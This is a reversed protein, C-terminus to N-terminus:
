SLTMEALAEDGPEILEPFEERAIQDILAFAENQLNSPAQTVRGQMRFVTRNASLNTTLNEGPRAGNEYQLYYQAVLSAGNQGPIRLWEETWEDYDLTEARLEDPVDSEDPVRYFASRSENQVQHMKRLVDLPSNLDTVIRLPSAPDSSEKRLRQEFADLRNLFEASIGLRRNEWAAAKDSLQALESKEDPSQPQFEDPWETAGLEAVRLEGLREQESATPEPAQGPGEFVLELDGVGGLRAEIWRFDEMVPNDDPFMARFDSDIELRALGIVSLVTALAAVGLVPVRQRILFAAFPAAWRHHVVDGETQPKINKPEPALSLLAPVLTMSLLWAFITGVAATYGLMRVPVIDSVTLSLFGVTTTISTLFVPLTNRRLVEVIVAHKGPRQRRLVAWAAVLHIADAIGVATLMNPSVMTMNNFLDGIGFAFGVMGAVSLIVVALPALVGVPNRFILALLVAIAAFMFGMYRADAMGVEEFNREFFPAGGLHFLFPSLPTPTWDASALQPLSPDSLDHFGGHGDPEFAFWKQQLEGQADRMFSRSPDALESSLAAQKDGPPLSAIWTALASHAPSLVVAGLEEHLAHELGRMTARQSVVSYLDPAVIKGLEDDGFAEALSQEDVRPRLVQIQLATTSGSPDIITGLLLPEGVFDAFHVDAGLVARVAAEGLREAVREAGLVAVMREIRENESLQSPQGEVLDSILLGEESDEGSGEAGEITGWRIWPNSTLSRVHRVGPVALFADTLRAIVELSQNSFAGFPSQTDEFSVVLYDEAVFRDEIGRYALVAEDEAGFWIDMRSDFVVPPTADSGNSVDGLSNLSANFQALRGTGSFLASFVVALVLLTSWWRLQYLRLALPKSEFLM